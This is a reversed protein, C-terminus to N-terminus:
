ANTVPTLDLLFDDVAVPRTLEGIRHLNHYRLDLPPMDGVGFGYFGCERMRFDVRLDFTRGPIYAMDDPITGVYPPTSPIPILHEVLAPPVPDDDARTNLLHQQRLFLEFDPDFATEPASLIAAIGRPRIVGIISDNEPIIRRGDILDYFATDSHIPLRLFEGSYTDESLNCITWLRLDDQQWLSAAIMEHPTEILPVWGEGTFLDAYRRQVPLMARLISRDRPSWPRSEGFINEWVAIGTGNMWALHLEETHDRQWRKIRHQMHRREFWKNRLVGPLTNVPLSQAWSAHHKDIQELPLAHESELVVGPRAADLKERLGEMAQSLTDLFIADADLAVILEVLADTDSQGESRTGRDWPNYDIYVRIGRSHCYDVLCRLATLGGPVDRYFDYQNRNDFGIKPYAHWWLIADFRGFDAEARDLYDEITFKHTSADYFRPDFMMVFGLAFCRSMWTFAPDTYSASSYGM